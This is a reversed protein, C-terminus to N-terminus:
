VLLNEESSGRRGRRGLAFRSPRKKEDGELDVSVSDAVASATLITSKGSSGTDSLDSAESDTLFASTPRHHSHADHGLSM